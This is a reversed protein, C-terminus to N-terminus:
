ATLRRWAHAARSFWRSDSRDQNDDRSEFWRLCDQMTWAVFGSRIVELAALHMHRVTSVNQPHLNLVLVGPIGSSRIEQANDLVCRGCEEDPRGGDITRLGDGIATVVSWHRSLQWGAVLRGPLLSGNIPSGDLGPLNSSFRLGEDLWPRLHGWYGDNLYGHNRVSLARRGTLKQFWSCQEHLLRAYEHPTELADPHIGLEVPRGKFMRSMSDPTHRTLPHLFYTVPNGALLELQEEYKDLFAQDDDGTIVIAGPAGGPLISEPRAGGHEALVEALLAIWFDAQRQQSRSLGEIQREFLYIPREGAIDWLAGEPRPAAPNGQRYLVLDAGLDTGVLLVRGGGHDVLHWANGGHGDRLMPRGAGAFRWSAHWTRLVRPQGAVAHSFEFPLACEAPAAVIGLESCFREDPLLAVLLGGQALLLRDAAELVSCRSRVTVKDRLRTPGLGMVALLHRLVVEHLHRTVRDTM